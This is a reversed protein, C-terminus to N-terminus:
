LWRSLPQRQRLDLSDALSPEDWDLPHSTETPVISAEITASTASPKATSPDTATSKSRTLYPSRKAPRHPQLYRLLIICGTACALAVAFLSLLPLRQKAAATPPAIPSSVIPAPTRTAPATVIPPPVATPLAAAPSSRKAYDLSLIYTVSVRALLLFALWTLLLLVLPYRKFLYILRAFSSKAFSSKAFSNSALSSKPVLDPTGLATARDGQPEAYPRSRDRQTAPQQRSRREQWRLPQNRGM